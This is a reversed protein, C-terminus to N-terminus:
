MESISELEVHVFYKTAGHTQIGITRFYSISHVKVRMNKRTGYEINDYYQKIDLQGATAAQGSDISKQFVTVVPFIAQPISCGKAFGMAMRPSAVEVDFCFEPRGANFNICSHGSRDTYDIDQLWGDRM